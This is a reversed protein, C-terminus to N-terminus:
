CGSNDSTYLYEGNKTIAISNINHQHIRGYDKILVLGEDTIKWQKVYGGHDSTFLMQDDESIVM